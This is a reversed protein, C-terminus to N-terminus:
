DIYCTGGYGKVNPETPLCYALVHFNEVTDGRKYSGYTAYFSYYSGTYDTSKCYAMIEGMGDLSVLIYVVSDDLVYVKSGPSTETLTWTGNVVTAGGSSTDTDGYSCATIGSFIVTISAPTPDVIRDHALLMTAAASDLVALSKNTVESTSLDVASKTALAGQGSITAAVIDGATKVNTVAGSVINGTEIFSSNKINL